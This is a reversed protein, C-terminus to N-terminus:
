NSHIHNKVHKNNGSQQSSDTCLNHPSTPTVLLTWHKDGATKEMWTLKMSSVKVKEVLHSKKKQKCVKNCWVSSCAAHVSNRQCWNFFFTQMFGSYFHLQKWLILIRFVILCHSLSDTYHAGTDSHSSLQWHKNNTHAPWAWSEARCISNGDDEARCVLGEGETLVCVNLLAPILKTWVFFCWETIQLWFM